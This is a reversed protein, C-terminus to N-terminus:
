LTNETVEKSVCVVCVSLRQILTRVVIFDSKNKKAKKGSSRSTLTNERLTKQTHRADQLTQRAREVDELTKGSFACLARRMPESTLGIPLNSIKETFLVQWCYKRKHDQYLSLLSSDFAHMMSGRQFVESLFDLTHKEAM